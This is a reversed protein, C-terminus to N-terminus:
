PAIVRVCSVKGDLNGGFFYDVDLDADEFSNEFTHVTRRNLDRKVRIRAFDDRSTCSSDDYVEVVTGARAFTLKLSRAEDNACASSQTFNVTQSYLTLDCVKNQSGGNGEYFSVVPQLESRHGVRLRSVKGDLNDDYFSVISLDSNEFDTEFSGVTAEKIARKPIIVAWDDDRSGASNDYVFVVKDAPFDYLKLSRAEDNECHPDQTLNITRTGSIRNSCVLDQTAHNGEYLDVVTGVPSNRLEMASVKGDLNDDRHYIVRVDADEFSREYTPIIKRSIDRKVIIETWDDDEFRRHSNDYFRFVQGAFVDHLLLSRTEDNDCFRTDEFRVVKSAGRPVSIPCVLDQSGGNGEYLELYNGISTGWDPLFLDRDLDRTTGADDILVNFEHSVNWAPFEHNGSGVIAIADDATMYKSHNGRPGNGEIPELGDESYWRFEFLRQNALPLTNIAQRLSGLVDQNDIGLLGLKGFNFGLPVLLKVNVGRAVAGAVANLFHDDNINPTEIHVHSRSRGLATLWALDQPSNTNNPPTIFDGEKKRGVALVPIDGAIQTAPIWSRSPDPFKSRKRCDYGSRDLCEWFHTDGDNWTEEFASLGARGVEGELIYGTDHWPIPADHVTQPNAGTVFLYRADVVIFKDHLNASLTGRGATAFQLDVRTTDLGAAEWRKQSDWLDNIARPTFFDESDDLLFRAVLPRRASHNTQALILGEGILDAAQSTPDWQYFVLDVEHRAGAIMDRAAAYIQPGDIALSDFRNCFTLLLSPDTPSNALAGPTNEIASLAFAALPSLASRDRRFCWPVPPLDGHHFLQGLNHEGYTFPSLAKWRFEAFSTGNGTLQLSSGEPLNLTQAQLSNSTLGAAPGELASLSQHFSLFQVVERAADVLAVADAPGDWTGESAEVFLTGFGDGQDELWGGLALSVSDVGEGGHYVAVSWGSLDTGAPGAVEVVQAASTGGDYQLENFFVSPEAAGPAPRLIALFVLAWLLGRVEIRTPLPFPTTPTEFM